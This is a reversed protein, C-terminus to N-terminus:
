VPLLLSAVGFYIVLGSVDVITTIAPSAVVAPDINAKRALIPLMAGTFTSTTIQAMLSVAATLAFMGISIGEPMEPVIGALMPVLAFTLLAICGGLLTGLILGLRTEKWAVRMSTGRELEGLAMARIVMTAAQGGTNGGAAVVMPLYLALIYVNSLVDHFKLMVYGSLVALLALGLLWPFRRKFHEAVSTNLYTGESQEGSVGAMKEIDETSEEELIEMADDHTIVGLLRKYEDVVPLSFMDYKIFMQMAEEQDASALIYRNVPTMIKEIPTDWKNFALHRIKVKGLLAGEDDLVFIRALSDTEEEIGRLSELAEKVTMSLHVRGYHTTMRGGATEEGYKLLADVVKKDKPDLLSMYRAKADESVDQLADALDDDTLEDLLEHQDAPSFHEIADEVLVDPIDAVVEAFVKTGAFEAFKARDVEDLEEYFDALDAYHIGEALLKFADANNQELAQSLAELNHKTTSESM